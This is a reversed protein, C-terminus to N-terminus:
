TKAKWAACWIFFHPSMTTLIEYDDSQMKLTSRVWACFMANRVDDANMAKYREVEAAFHASATPVPAQASDEAHLKDAIEEWKQLTSPLNTM